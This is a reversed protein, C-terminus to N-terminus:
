AWPNATTSATCTATRAQGPVPTPSPRPGTSVRGSGGAWSSTTVTGSSTRTSSVPCHPEPGTPDANERVRDQADPGHQGEIHAERQETTGHRGSECNVLGWPDSWRPPDPVYGHHNPAPALGLPDPSICRANGPDYYLVGCCSRDRKGSTGGLPLPATAPGNVAPPHSRSGSTRNKVSGSGSPGSSKPM